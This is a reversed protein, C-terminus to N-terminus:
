DHGHESGAQAHALTGAAAAQGDHRQLQEADLLVRYDANSMQLQAKLIHIAAIHGNRASATKSVANM